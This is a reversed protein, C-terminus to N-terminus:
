DNGGPLPPSTYVVLSSVVTEAGAQAFGYFGIALGDTTALELEAKGGDFTARCYLRGQRDIDIVRWATVTIAGAIAMGASKALTAGGVERAVLEDAGDGDTDHVIACGLGIGDVGDGDVLVEFRGGASWALQAIRAQAYLGDGAEREGHIWRADGSARAADGAITWGTGTWESARTADAFPHFAALKDGSLAPRPDCADGVGDPFAIMTAAETTDRQLPDPAAPCTDCADGIGDGDEDHALDVCPAADVAPADDSGGGCACAVLLTLARRRVDRPYCRWGHPTEALRAM